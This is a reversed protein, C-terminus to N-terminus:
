SKDMMIKLAEVAPRLVGADTKSAENKVFNMLAQQLGAEEAEKSLKKLVMKDSVALLINRISIIARHVLGPHTELDAREEEEDTGDSSVASPDILQALIRFVRHKDFQLSIIAACASPASSLTAVAGSAALRTPLDDVDSLAFMIQIKSKTASPNNGGGYKEFVDDSGAILNCILEMAARRVLNHDELLLLEVKQLLGEAQAIRTAIETGQSSLNTLAMMSEFRQLLTSSTGQLMLSFPRIADYLAGTNPGFVQVPSSTIALKALAQTADLVHSDLTPTPATTPSSRITTAPPLGNKIIHMLIKTSGSQLVKGRTDKDEVISLLAKAALTRVGSTDTQAVITFIDLVNANILRRIRAKVHDDDDLISPRQSKAGSANNAKAMNRLREIQAEEETLRPRYACLNSVILLIGFGLTTPPSPSPSSSKRGPVLNFLRKLFITDQSLQEKIAPDVSLYALGEVADSTSDGDDGSIVIAKMSMALDGDKQSGIKTQVSAASDGAVEANDLATGRSLKILATTAGARTNTDSSKQSTFDLWKIAQPSMASRCPKHGAAQSLLQAVGRALVKSPTLDVSDMILELVGDQLFISSASQWDVQFLATLFSVSSLLVNEDTDALQNAVLPGFARALTETNPDGDKTQTTSSNRVGQCFASLTLFAKSRDDTSRSPLFATILYALEDPLTSSSNREEKTEQLKAM